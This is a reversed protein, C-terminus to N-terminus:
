PEDASDNLTGAVHGSDVETAPDTFARAQVAYLKSYEGGKAMLEQHTGSEVFEGSKLCLIVDAYKTLHGFRHTVFVMTKGQRMARLQEFLEFEGLPDMASSPEDVVVLRTRPNMLRMFTRAAALRQQEGGSIDKWAELKDYMEKLPGEALSYNSSFSTTVPHIVEDFGKERKRIFELAGGLRAAEHVREVLHTRSAAGGEACDLCFEPDGIAINELITFAPFLSHSQTLLTTAKQLDETTWFRAGTSIDTAHPDVGDFLITGATPRHLNCLLNVLSSKGSGNAGVIVVLSSPPLTFTVDRLAASSSSADDASSPYRFTVNRLEIGVGKSQSTDSGTAKQAGEDGEVSEAGAKDQVELDRYVSRIQKLNERFSTREMLVRELTNRTIGLTEHLMALSSLSLGSQRYVVASIAYYILPLDDLVGLVIAGFPNSQQRVAEFPYDDSFPGLLARAKEHERRIYESMTGSIVERKYSSSIALGHFSEARLYHKNNVHAIYTTDDLEHRLMRSVLPWTVCLAIVILSNAMSAAGGSALEGSSGADTTANGTSNKMLTDTGTFVSLLSVSDGSATPKLVLNALLMLSSVTSFIVDLSSMLNLLAYWGNMPSADISSSAERYHSMDQSLHANMLREQFYLKARGKLIPQTRSSFWRWVAIAAVAAIRYLVARLIAPGDPNSSAIGTEILTMVRNNLWLLMAGEFGTLSYNLALIWFLGPGLLYVDTVLRPIHTRELQFKM